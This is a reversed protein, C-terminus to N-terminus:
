GATGAGRGAGDSRQLVLRFEATGHDALSGVPGFGTPARIGWGSFAVPISGSAQLASGDRRCSITITVRRSVGRMTLQGAAALRITAGKAFGSGLTVPRTLIATAVPHTGTGLSTAFQPQSKGNENITTLDIRFSARTVREGSIALTGTVSNTRGVVDNSFGLVTERVRFGAVSGPGVAWTGGPPGVPASARAAPLALPPLDPSLKIFLAAAAFVLVVLAGAGLLIWRWWRRRRPPHGPGIRAPTEPGAKSTM